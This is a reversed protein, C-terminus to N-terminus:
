ASGSPVRLGAVLKQKKALKTKYKTARQNCQQVFYVKAKSASKPPYAISLKAYLYTLPLEQRGCLLWIALVFLLFVLGVFFGLCTPVVIVALSWFIKHDLAAPRHEIASQLTFSVKSLDL